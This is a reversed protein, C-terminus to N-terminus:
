WIDVHKTHCTTAVNFIAGLNDVRVPVPYKVAIKMSGPLQIVFMVEKFAKSLTIYEM